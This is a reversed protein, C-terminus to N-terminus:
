SISRKRQKMRTTRIQSGRLFPSFTYDTVTDYISIVSDYLSGRVTVSLHGDELIYFSDGIDDQEIVVDGKKYYVEEFSQAASLLDADSLGAPCSCFLSKFRFELKHLLSKYLM